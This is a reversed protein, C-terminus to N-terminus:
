PKRAKCLYIYRSSSDDQITAKELARKANWCTDYAKQLEEDTKYPYTWEQMVTGSITGQESWPTGLPAIWIAIWILVIM